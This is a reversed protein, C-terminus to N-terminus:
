LLFAIYKPLVRQTFLPIFHRESAVSHMLACYMQKTLEMKEQGRYQIYMAKHQSPIVFNYNDESLPCYRLTFRNDDIWWAEVNVLNNAYYFTYPNGSKEQWKADAGLVVNEVILYTIGKSDIAYPYPVDNNGVPSVFSVIPALAEFQWLDRGIHVYLLKDAPLRYLITNGDFAPGFGGGVITMICEPSQGIWIEQCTQKLYPEYPFGKEANTSQKYICLETNSFIEVRFPRGGNDHVMYTRQETAGADM